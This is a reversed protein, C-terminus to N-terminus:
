MCRGGAEKLIMDVADHGNEKALLRATAGEKNMLNVTANASVLVAVTDAHGGQSALMLASMGDKNQVNVDAGRGVLLQVVEHKGHKAALMIATNGSDDKANVTEGQDLLAKVQAVGGNEAEKFWQSAGGKTDKLAEVVPKAAEVKKGNDEPVSGAHGVVSGLFSLAIMLLFPGAYKM